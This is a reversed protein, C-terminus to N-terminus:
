QGLMSKMRMQRQEREAKAKAKEMLIMEIRKAKREIAAHENAIIKLREHRTFVKGNSAARYTIPASNSNGMWNSKLTKTM